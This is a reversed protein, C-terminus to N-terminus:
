QLVYKVQIEVVREHQEQMVVTTVLVAMDEEVIGM